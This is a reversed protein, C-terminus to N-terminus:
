RVYYLLLKDRGELTNTNKNNYISEAKNIVRYMVDM